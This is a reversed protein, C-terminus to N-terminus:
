AVDADPPVQADRLKQRQETRRFGMVAAVTFLPMTAFMMAYDHKASLGVVATCVLAMLAFIGLEVRNPLRDFM